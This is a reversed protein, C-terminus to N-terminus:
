PLAKLAAVVGPLVTRMRKDDSQDAEVYVAQLFAVLDHRRALWQPDRWALSPDGLRPLLAAFWAKWGNEDLM